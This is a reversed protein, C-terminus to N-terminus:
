FQEFYLLPLSFSQFSTIPCWQKRKPYGLMALQSLEKTSTFYPAPSPTDESLNLQRGEKRQALEAEGMLGLSPLGPSKGLGERLRRELLM